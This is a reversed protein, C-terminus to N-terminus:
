QKDIERECEKKKKKSQRENTVHSNLSFRETPYIVRGLIDSSELCM